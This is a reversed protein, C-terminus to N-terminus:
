KRENDVDGYWPELVFDDCPDKPDRGRAILYCAGYHMCDMCDHGNNSTKKDDM